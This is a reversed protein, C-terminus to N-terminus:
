DRWFPKQGELWAEARSVGIDKLLHDNLSLLARRQRRRELWLGVRALAGGTPVASPTVSGSRAALHAKAIM